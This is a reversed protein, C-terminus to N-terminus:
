ECPPAYKPGKHRIFLLSSGAYDFRAYEPNILTMEGEQYPNGLSMPVESPNSLQWFSGDFDVAYDAGCHTYLQFPYAKGLDAQPSLPERVEFSQETQAASVPTWTAIPLQSIPVPTMTSQSIGGCGGLLIVMALAFFVINSKM